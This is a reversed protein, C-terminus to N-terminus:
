AVIRQLRVASASAENSCLLFDQDGVAPKPISASVALTVLHTGGAASAKQWFRPEIREGRCEFSGYRDWDTRRVMFLLPSGAEVPWAMPPLAALATAPFLTSYNSVPGFAPGALNGCQVIAFENAKAGWQGAILMCSASIVSPDALLRGLVEICRTDHLLVTSDMVLLLEGVAHRAAMTMQQGPDNGGDTIVEGSRPMALTDIPLLCRQLLAEATDRHTQSTVTIIHLAGPWNQLLLAELSMTFAETNGDYRLLASLAPAPQQTVVNGALRAASVTPAYPTLLESQSPTQRTLFHLAAPALSQAAPSTTAQQRDTADPVLWQPFTSLGDRRSLEPDSTQCPPTLLWQPAGDLRRCLVIPALRGHGAAGCFLSHLSPLDAAKLMMTAAPMTAPRMPGLRTTMHLWEQGPDTKEGGHLPELSCNGIQQLWDKFSRSLLRETGNAGTLDVELRLSPRRAGAAQWANLIAVSATRAAELAGADPAVTLAEGHHNGGRLLSPFPLLATGLLRGAATTLVLLVPMYPSALPADIISLGECALNATSLVIRRRGGFPDLQLVTMSATALTGQGHLRIRLDQGSAYFIDSIAIGADAGFTLIGSGSVTRDALRDKTDDAPLSSDQWLWEEAPVASLWCMLKAARQWDHVLIVDEEAVQCVPRDALGLQRLSVEGTSAQSALAAFPAVSAIRPPRYANRRFRAPVPEELPAAAPPAAASATAAVIDSSAAHATVDFPSIVARRGEAMGTSLYHFLPNVGAQAVDPYSAKYGSSSFHPSPDRDELGGYRVFHDLPDIWSSGVDRYNRLYWQADFLDSKGILVIQRRYHRRSPPLCRLFTVSGLLFAVPLPRRGDPPLLRRRIRVWREKDGRELNRRVWAVIRFVLQRLNM